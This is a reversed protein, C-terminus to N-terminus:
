IAPMGDFLVRGKTDVTILPNVNKKPINLDTNWDSLINTAKDIQETEANIQNNITKLKDREQKIRQEQSTRLKNNEKKSQQQKAALLKYLQETTEKDPKFGSNNIKTIAQTLSNIDADVKAITILTKNIIKKREIAPKAKLQELTELRHRAKRLELTKDVQDIFEKGKEVVCALQEFSQVLYDTLSDSTQPHTNNETVIKYEPSIMTVLEDYPHNTPREACDTFNITLLLSFLLSNKKM